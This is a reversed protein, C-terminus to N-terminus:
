LVRSEPIDYRLHTFKNVSSSFCIEFEPYYAAPLQLGAKSAEPQRLPTAQIHIANAHTAKARDSRKEAL